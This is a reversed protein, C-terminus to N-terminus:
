EKLPSIHHGVYWWKGDKKQMIFTSVTKDPKDSGDPQKHHLILNGMVVALNGSKFSKMNTTELDNTENEKRARGVITARDFFKGGNIDTNSAIYDDSCNNEFFSKGDKNYDAIWQKVIEEPKDDKDSVNHLAAGVFKWTNSVREFIYLGHAPNKAGNSFTTVQDFDAIAINGNIRIRHNTKLGTKGSPKLNNIVNEFKEKDANTLSGDANNFLFMFKPDIKWLKSFTEKDGGYFARTEEDLLKKITAEDEEKSPHNYIHHATLWLWKGNKYEFTYIFHVSYKSLANSTTSQIIHDNIGRVIAVNGIQKVKLDHTNWEVVKIKADKMAQLTLNAGAATTFSYDPSVEEVIFKPYDQMMRKNMDLLTQETFPTQAFSFVSIISLFFTITLQKM